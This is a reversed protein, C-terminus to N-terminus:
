KQSLVMLIVCQSQTGTAKMIRCALRMRERVCDTAERETGYKEMKDRLLCSILFLLMRERVCDTAERETGYKEMKDRLLCSILFFKVAYIIHTKILKLVKTQFKESELFFEATYQRLRVYTKM